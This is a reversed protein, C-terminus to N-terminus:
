SFKGASTEGPKKLQPKKNEAIWLKNNVVVTVLKGGQSEFSNGQLPKEQNRCAPIKVLHCHMRFYQM